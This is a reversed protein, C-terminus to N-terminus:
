YSSFNQNYNPINKYIKLNDTFFNYFLFTMLSNITFCPPQLSVDFRSQKKM